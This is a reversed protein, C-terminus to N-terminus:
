VGNEGSQAAGSAEAEQSRHGAIGGRTDPAHRMGRRSHKSPKRFRLHGIAGGRHPEVTLLQELRLKFLAPLRHRYRECAVYLSSPDRTLRASVERLSALGNQIVYWCILARALALRRERSPSLADEVRVGIMRCVADVIQSYTGALRASRQARVQTDHQEKLWRLFQRDGKASPVPEQLHTIVHELADAAFPMARYREGLVSGSRAHRRNFRIAYPVTIRRLLDTLSSKRIEVAFRADCDTLQVAVMRYDGSKVAKRCVEQLVARDVDDRFLLEQGNGVVVVFYYGSTCQSRLPRSM